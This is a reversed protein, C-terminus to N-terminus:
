AVKRRGAGTWPRGALAVVVACGARRGAAPGAVQGGTLIWPPLHRVVPDLLEIGLEAVGEASEAGVDLWLDDTRTVETEDRHQAAFHGNTRAIVGAVPGSRTLVRVQQAEFHQDWLPHGSGRGIRHLRLYGGDTVQTVAYAPQDLACAVVTRPSGSGVERVLNGWRDSSWGEMEEALPPTLRTEYGPAVDVVVWSAVAEADVRDQAQLSLPAAWAALLLTLSPLLPPPVRTM